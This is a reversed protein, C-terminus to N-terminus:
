RENPRVSGRASEGRTSGTPAPASPHTVSRPADEKLIEAEAKANGSISENGEPRQVELRREPQPATNVPDSKNPGTGGAGTVGPGIPTDAFAPAALALACAASLLLKKM